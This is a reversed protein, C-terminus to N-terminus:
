TPLHFFLSVFLLRDDILLHCHSTVHRSMSWDPGSMWQPALHLCDKWINSWSVSVYGSIRLKKPFLVLVTTSSFATEIILQQIM